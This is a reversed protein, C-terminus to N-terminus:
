WRPYPVFYVRPSWADPTGDFVDDFDDRYVYIHRRAVRPRKFRHVASHARGRRARRAVAPSSPREGTVVIKTDNRNEEVLRFLVAAHAPLLRICGHSAPRGLRSIEYSGHIAYGGHFFISYPMPANDYKRSYWKRALRQPRYTGNPTRYGWRATSVPWEYSPVGDVTVSLRQSSKDVTVVVEARAVSVSLLILGALAISLRLM